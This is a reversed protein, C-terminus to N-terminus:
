LPGGREGLEVVEHVGGVHPGHNGPCRAHRHRMQAVELSRSEGAAVPLFEASM